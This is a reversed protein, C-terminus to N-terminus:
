PMIDLVNPSFKDQRWAHAQLVGIPGDMCLTRHYLFDLEDMMKCLGTAPANPANNGQHIGSIFDQAHSEDDM